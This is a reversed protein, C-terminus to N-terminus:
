GGSDDVTLTPITSSAQFNATGGGHVEMTGITAEDEVILNGDQFVDVNDIVIPDTSGNLHTLEATGAGNVVLSNYLGLGDGSGTGQGFDVLVDANDDSVSDEVRIMDYGAGTKV